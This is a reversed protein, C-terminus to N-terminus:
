SKLAIAKGQKRKQRRALLPTLDVTLLCTVRISAGPCLLFHLKSPLTKNDTPLGCPGNNTAWYSISSKYRCADDNKRLDRKQRWAYADLAVTCLMNRNARPLIGGKAVGYAGALTCCESAPTWTHQLNCLSETSNAKGSCPPWCSRQGCNKAIGHTICWVM